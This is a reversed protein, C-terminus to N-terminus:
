LISWVEDKSFRRTWPQYRNERQNERIKRDVRLLVRELRGVVGM